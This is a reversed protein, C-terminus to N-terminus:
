YATCTTGAACSSPIYYQSSHPLKLQLTQIAQPSINNGNCNVTVGGHFPNNQSSVANVGGPTPPCVSAGLAAVFAQTAADCTAIMQAITTVPSPCTGRGAALNPIPAFKINSTFGQAAFGNKQYTQQYSIFFFLKDKKVPGGIVGGYQNQNLAGETNSKGQQLESRKLFWDNANLVTNRFFEFATGHFANTGTKTVVNVNAGSNRGYSADYTSTQIKFEQIADPNPIPISAFIGVDTGANFSAWNDIPAGDM